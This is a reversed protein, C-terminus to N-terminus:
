GQFEGVTIELAEELQLIQSSFLEFEERGCADLVSFLETDIGETQYQFLHCLNYKYLPSGM